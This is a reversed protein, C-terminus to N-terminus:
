EYTERYHKIAKEIGSKLDHKPDFDLLEKAKTIDILRSKIMTPKTLDYQVDADTYGDVELITQLTEKITYSQGAAINVITFEDLKEMAEVLGDVMDSIYTLDKLDSGDGWVVL